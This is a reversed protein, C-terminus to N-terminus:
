FLEVDGEEMNGQARTRQRQVDAEASIGRVHENFIRIVEIMRKLSQEDYGIANLSQGMERISAQLSSMQIHMQQCIQKSIDDFQLSQVVGAVGSRVRDGIDQMQELKSEVFVSQQKMQGLMDDVKVKHQMAVSMDRSAIKGVLDKAKSINVKSNAVVEKIKGNLDNSNQSLARVEDAVVAFGRGAEGARAAEIAANLALLNTQDAIVSIDSLLGNVADMQKEIDDVTYVMTMGGRSVETVIDVFYELVQHTENIFTASSLQSEEGNLQNIVEHMLHSQTESQQSLISFSNSLTEVAETILNQLREINAATKEAETELVGGQQIHENVLSKFDEHQYIEESEDSDDQARLLFIVSGAWAFVIVLVEILGFSLNNVLAGYVLVIISIAIAPIIAKM